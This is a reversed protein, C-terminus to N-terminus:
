DRKKTDTILAFFLIICGLIAAMALIWGAMAHERQLDKESLAWYSTRILGAACIIALSFLCIFLGRVFTM